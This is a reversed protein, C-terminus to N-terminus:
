EDTQDTLDEKDTQDTEDVRNIETAKETENAKVNEDTKDTEDAKETSASDEEPEWIIEPLIEEGYVATSIKKTLPQMYASIKLGMIGLFATLINGADTVACLVIVIAVLGYRLASQRALYSVAGKETLSLGRELGRWMHHASLMATLIGIWLGRSFSARDAFFLLVVQCCVAYILIGTELEFVTRNMRLIIQKM